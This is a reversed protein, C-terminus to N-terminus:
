ALWLVGRRHRAPPIDVTDAAALDLAGPRPGPADALRRAATLRIRLAQRARRELLNAECSLDGHEYRPLAYVRVARRIRRPRPRRGAGGAEALVRSGYRLDYLVVARWPGGGPTDWTDHRDGSLHHATRTM